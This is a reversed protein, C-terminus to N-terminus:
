DTLHLTEPIHDGLSVNHEACYRLALELLRDLNACDYNSYSIIDKATRVTDFLHIPTIAHCGNSWLDEDTMRNAALHRNLAVSQSPTM